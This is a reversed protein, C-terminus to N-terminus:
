RRAATILRRSRRILRRVERRHIHRSRERRRILAKTSLRSSINARSGRTPLRHTPIERRSGPQSSINLKNNLNKNLDKSLNNHKLSRLM